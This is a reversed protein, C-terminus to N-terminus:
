WPLRVFGGHRGLDAVRRLKAYVGDGDRNVANLAGAPGTNGEVTYMDAGSGLRAAVFGIHAIRGQGQMWFCALDGRRYQEADPALSRVAPIWLGMREGWAEYAPSWGTDPFSKPIEANLAAAAKEICFRVFAACWPNGGPLDVSALYAEVEPGRNNGGSEAVGVQREAERVAALAIPGPETLM